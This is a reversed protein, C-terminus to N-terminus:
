RVALVYRFCNRFRYAGDSGRFPAAAALVAPADLEVGAHQADLEHAELLADDDAFSFPVELDGSERVAFGAGTVLAELRGPDGLSHRGPSPPSIM